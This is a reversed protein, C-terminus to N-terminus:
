WPTFLDTDTRPEVRGLHLYTLTQALKIYSPATHMNAACLDKTFNVWPSGFTLKRIYGLSWPFKHWLTASRSFLKFHDYWCFSTVKFLEHERFTKNSNSQNETVQPHLKVIKAYMQNIDKLNM